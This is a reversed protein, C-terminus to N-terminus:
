FPVTGWVLAGNIFGGITTWEQYSTVMGFSYDNTQNYNQWDIMHFASKVEVIEGPAITGAEADFSIVLIGEGGVIEVDANVYNGIYQWSPIHAAYYIQGEEVQGTSETTYHYEAEIDALNLTTDGVNEIRINVSPSNTQVMPKYTMYEIRIDGTPPIVDCNRDVTVVTTGNDTISVNTDPSVIETAGSTYDMLSLSTVMGDSATDNDTETIKLSIHACQNLDIQALLDSVDLGVEINDPGTSGQMPWDGGANAFAGYYAKTYTSGNQEVVAIVNLDNRDPHTINVKLAGTVAHSAKTNLIHVANWTLAPQGRKDLDAIAKYAMYAFGNDGYSTGWSNAFILAGIEWDSMNVVGDGNIDVNNTYYGDNNFDYRVDDNYGVITMAHYGSDGWQVLMTKGEDPTGAELTVYDSNSIYAAFNALGGVASADGRDYIWQKLNDLGGTTNVSNIRQYDVVRNNMGSFYDDYGTMWKTSSVAMGGWETVNPCGNAKIIDWGDFYWSGAGSGANLFNWTYHSPYQNDTISADSNRVYNMEYTFNYGIGSAQGCSGGSQNFIPRFYPQTSNDVSRPPLEPTEMPGIYADASKEWVPLSDIRDYEADTLETLGTISEINANVPEIAFRDNLRQSKTFEMDQALVSGSLASFGLLSAMTIGLKKLRFFKM